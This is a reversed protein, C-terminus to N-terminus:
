GTIVLTFVRNGNRTREGKPRVKVPWMGEHEGPMGLIAAIDKLASFIGVSTAVYSKGQDDVLIIRPVERIEGTEDNVLSVPKIVWNALNLEKGEDILEELSGANTMAKLIELKTARDGGKFTSVVNTTGQKMQEIDHVLGDTSTSEILDVATGTTETM